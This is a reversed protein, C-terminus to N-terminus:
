RWIDHGSNFARILESKVTKDVSANSLLWVQDLVSVLNPERHLIKERAIEFNDHGLYMPIVGYTRLWKLFDSFDARSETLSQRAIVLQHELARIQSQLNNILDIPNELVSDTM